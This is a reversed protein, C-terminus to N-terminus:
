NTTKVRMWFWEMVAPRRESAIKLLLKKDFDPFNPLDDFNRPKSYFRKIDHTPAFRKLLTAGINIDVFDHVEVLIDTSKLDLIHTPNLLDIEGGEIDCIILEKKAKGLTQNLDEATCFGIITLRESLGNREAMTKMARRGDISSEFATVKSQPCMKLLGVAYYGEAAGVDVIHEYNTEIIEQIVGQIEKEYTGLLKPGLMSGCSLDSYKLGKFIGGAVLGDLKSYLITELANQQQMQKSIRVKRVKRVFSPTIKLLYNRLFPNM